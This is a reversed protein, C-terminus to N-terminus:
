LLAEDKVVAHLWIRAKEWHRQVTRECVGRMTAIEAFSFGCFFKLDVIQALTADVEALADLADSLRALRAAEVDADAVDTGLPVLEFGGGRKRAGRNRAYDVILGRMVRAAYAMFRGPEPFATGDRGAMDLYAEHLLTTAGLTVGGGRRALQHRALRHLEGYLTAFLTDIAARDGLEAAAFLSPITPPM